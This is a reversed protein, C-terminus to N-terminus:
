RGRPSVCRCNSAISVAPRLDAIAVVESDHGHESQQPLLDELRGAGIDGVEDFFVAVPYQPNDALAGPDNQHRQRRRDAAADVPSDASAGGPRHQEVATAYPHVPM